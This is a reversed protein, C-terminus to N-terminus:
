AAVVEIGRSSRPYYLNNRPCSFEKVGGSWVPQANCCALYILSCQLYRGPGGKWMLRVYYDLCYTEGRSDYLSPSKTWVLGDDCYVFHVLNCPYHKSKNGSWVHLVLHYASYVDASSHCSCLSDCTLGCVAHYAFYFCISSHTPTPYRWRLSYVDYYSFYMDDCLRCVLVM